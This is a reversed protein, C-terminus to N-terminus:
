AAASAPPHDSIILHFDRALTPPALRSLIVLRRNNEQPSM